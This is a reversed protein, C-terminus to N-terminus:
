PKKAKKHIPTPPDCPHSSCPLVPFHTHNPYLIHFEWIIFINHLILFLPFFLFECSSLTYFAFSEPARLPIDEDRGKSPPCPFRHLLLPLFTTLAPTSLPCWPSLIALLLPALTYIFECLSCLCACSRCLNLGSLIWAHLFLLPWM